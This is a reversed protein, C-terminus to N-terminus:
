WGRTLPTSRCAGTPAGHSCDRGSCPHMHTRGAGSSPSASPLFPVMAAGGTRGGLVPWRVSPLLLSFPKYKPIMSAAMTSPQQVPTCTSKHEGSADAAPGHLPMKQGKVRLHRYETVSWRYVERERWTRFLKELSPARVPRNTLHNPPFALNDARYGVAPEKPILPWSVLRCCSGPQASVPGTTSAAWDRSDQVSSPVSSAEAFLFCGDCFATLTPLAIDLLPHSFWLALTWCCDDGRGLMPHPVSGRGTHRDRAVCCCNCSFFWCDLGDVFGGRGQQSSQLGGLM